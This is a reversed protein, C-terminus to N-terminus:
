KHLLSFLFIFIQFILLIKLFIGVFAIKLNIEEKIKICSLNFSMEIYKIEFNLSYLDLDDNKQIKIIKM